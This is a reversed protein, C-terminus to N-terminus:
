WILSNQCYLNLIVLISEILELKGHLHESFDSNPYLGDINLSSLISNRILEFSFQGKLLDLKLFHDATRCIEFSSQCAKRTHKSSLFAEHVVENQRFVNRCLQCSYKDSNEIRM